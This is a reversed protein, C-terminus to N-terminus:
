WQGPTTHNVDDDDSPGIVEGPTGHPRGGAMMTVRGNIRRM